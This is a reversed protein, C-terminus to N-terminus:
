EKHHEYCCIFVRSGHCEIVQGSRVETTGRPWTLDGRTVTRQDVHEAVSRM